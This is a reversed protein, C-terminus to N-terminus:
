DGKTFLTEDIRVNLNFETFIASILVDGSANFTELKLPQATQNCIWLKQSSRYINDDDLMIELITTIDDSTNDVSVAIIAYDSNFYRDFFEPLFTYNRNDPDIEMSIGDCNIPPFITVMGNVFIYTMGALTEPSIIDERFKDPSVYYQKVTYVNETKETTVTVELVASFSHIDSYKREIRTHIDQNGGFICSVLSFVFVIASITAVSVFIATYRKVTLFITM